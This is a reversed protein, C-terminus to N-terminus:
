DTRYPDPCGCQHAMYSRPEGDYNVREVCIHCDGRTECYSHAESETLYMLSGCSDSAPNPPPGADLLPVSAGADANTAAAADSVGADRTTDDVAVRLPAPCVCSNEHSVAYTLAQDNWTSEVCLHCDGDCVEEAETFTHIGEVDPECLEPTNFSAIGPSDCATLGIVFVIYSWARM